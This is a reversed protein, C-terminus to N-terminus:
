KTRQHISSKESSIKLWKPIINLVWLPTIFYIQFTGLKYIHQMLLIGCVSKSNWHLFAPESDSVVKWHSRTHFSEQFDVIAGTYKVPGSNNRSLHHWQLYNQKNEYWFKAVVKFHERILWKWLFSKEPLLYRPSRAYM